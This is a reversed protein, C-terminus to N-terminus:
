LFRESCSVTYVQELNGRVGMGGVSTSGLSNPISSPLVWDKDYPQYHRHILETFFVDSIQWTTSLITDSRYWMPHSINPKM